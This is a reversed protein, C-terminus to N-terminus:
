WGWGVIPDRLLHWSLVKQSGMHRPGQGLSSFSWFTPSVPDVHEWGPRSLRAQHWGEWAGQAQGPCSRWGVPPSLSCTHAPWPFPETGTAQAAGVRSLPWPRSVHYRLSPAQTQCGSRGFLNSFLPKVGEWLLYQGQPRDFSTRSLARPGSSAPLPCAVAQQIHSGPRQPSSLPPALLHPRFFLLHGGRALRPPPM